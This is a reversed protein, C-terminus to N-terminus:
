FKYSVLEGRKLQPMIDMKIKRILFSKKTLSITTDTTISKLQQTYHRFLFSALSKKLEEESMVKISEDLSLGTINPNEEKKIVADLLGGYNGFMSPEIVNTVKNIFHRNEFLTKIISLCGVDDRSGEEFRVKTNELKANGGFLASNVGM